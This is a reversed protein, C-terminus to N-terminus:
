YGPTAQGQLAGQNVATRSKEGKTEHFIVGMSLIDLLPQGRGLWEEHDPETAGGWVGSSKARKEPLVQIYISLCHFILEFCRPRDAHLDAICVHQWKLVYWIIRNRHSGIQLYHIAKRGM